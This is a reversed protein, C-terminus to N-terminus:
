LPFLPFISPMQIIKIPLRTRGVAFNWLLFNHMTKFINTILSVFIFFVCADDPPIIQMDLAGFQFLGFILYAVILLNWLVLSFSTATGDLFKYAVVENTIFSLDEQDSNIFKEQASYYHHKLSLQFILPCRGMIRLLQFLPLLQKSVLNQRYSATIKLNVQKDITSIQSSTSIVQFELSVSPQEAM